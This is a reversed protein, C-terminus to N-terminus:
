HVFFSNKKNVKKTMYSGFTSKDGFMYNRACMKERRANKKSKLGLVIQGVLIIQKENIRKYSHYYKSPINM